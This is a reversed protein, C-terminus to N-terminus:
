IGMSIIPISERSLDAFSFGSNKWTLALTQKSDSNPKHPQYSRIM